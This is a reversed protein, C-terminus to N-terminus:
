CEKITIEIIVEIPLAPLQDKDGTIDWYNSEKKNPEM